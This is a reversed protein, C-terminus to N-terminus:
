YGVHRMFRVKLSVRRLSQGLNWLIVGSSKLDTLFILAVWPSFFIPWVFAPKGSWLPSHKPAHDSAWDGVHGRCMPLVWPLSPRDQPVNRTVQEHRALGEERLGNKSFTQFRVCAFPFVRGWVSRGHCM